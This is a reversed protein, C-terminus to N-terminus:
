SVYGLEALLDGGIEEFEDREALSMSRRWAGARSPDPPQHLLAHIARREDGSVMGGGPRPHEHLDALRAAARAHYALMSPHPELGVFRCVNALERQPDRVLNEYRLELYRDPFQAADARARAIRDCWQRAADAVTPPAWWTRMLSLAVDRGDRIVHVFRAEPLLGSIVPMHLVYGPTKDGWHQKGFRRAYLSYFLRIGGALTFPEMAEVASQLDDYDIHWDRWRTSSHLLELLSRAPEEARAWAAALQPIFDTSNPIAMEPHSDLMLRLLTSGSRAVSVIFPAPQM